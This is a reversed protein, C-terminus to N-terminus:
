RECVSKFKRRNEEAQPNISLTAVRGTIKELCERIDKEENFINEM